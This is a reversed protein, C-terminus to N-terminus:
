LPDHDPSSATFAPVTLRRPEGCPLNDFFPWDTSDNIRIVLCQCRSRAMMSQISAVQTMFLRRFVMTIIAQRAAPMKVTVVPRSAAALGM